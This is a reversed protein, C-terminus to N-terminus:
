GSRRRDLRYLALGLFLATLIMFYALDASHVLGLQLNLLHSPWALWHLLSGSETQQDLLSILLLLGYAGAAAVSPNESLVSTYLAIALFQA